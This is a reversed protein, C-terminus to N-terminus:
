LTFMILKNSITMAISKGHNFVIPKTIVTDSDYEKIKMGFNNYVEIKKNYCVFSISNEHILYKTEEALGITKVNDKGMRAIDLKYNGNSGPFVVIEMNVPLETGEDLSLPVIAGERCFVPYDEDKYFSMYYKNGLYKKGSEFEYWIGEPIFM